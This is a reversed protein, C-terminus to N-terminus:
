LAYISDRLDYLINNVNVDEISYDNAIVLDKLNEISMYQFDIENAHSKALTDYVKAIKQSMKSDYNEGGIINEKKLYNINAM